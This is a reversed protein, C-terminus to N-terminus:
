GYRPCRAGRQHYRHRDVHRCRRHQVDGLVHRGWGCIPSGRCQYQYAAGFTTAGALTVTALNDSSALTVNDSFTPIIVGRSNAAVLQVTLPVGVQVTGRPSEAEFVLQSATNSSGHGGYGWPIGGLGPVGSLLSRTELREVRLPRVRSSNRGRSSSKGYKGRLIWNPLM